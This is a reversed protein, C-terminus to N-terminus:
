GGAVPPIFVVRDQDQIVSDLDAFEDNVAVKIQHELLHFQYKETLYRYLERYSTLELTLNETTIGAQEQLAAFYQVTITKPFTNSNSM